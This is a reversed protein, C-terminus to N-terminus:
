NNAMAQQRLSILCGRVHRASQLNPNDANIFRQDAFLYTGGQVKSNSTPWLPPINVDSRTAQGSGGM